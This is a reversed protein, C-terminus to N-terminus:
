GMAARGERLSLWLLAAAALVVMPVMAVQVAGWGAIALLVGSSLSGLSVLAMVAFDNLGQVRAREEPRTAETLMATAGIFAFNWGLGLTILAVYFHALTIGSFAASAAVAFCILGLAIIRPAGFRAILSGTIFSPAYMALVHGQVVGAAEHTGFGCAAMALPTATMMLNMLAYAVMACIMAVGIRRESLIERLSRRPTDETAEHHAPPIDLFLLPITGIAAVVMMARYAGAYPVPELWDTWGQVVEPGILAAALGGAMVLSIARPRFSPSAADAAAFRYFNHGAMYLGILASGGLFLGFSREGIAVSALWLGVMGAIAAVLFGARRGYRGMFGSLIPASAMAAIVVVSIPLTALIPDPALLNGALGGLIFHMPMMAGLVSQAWGLIAVVTWARADGRGADHSEAPATGPLEAETTTAMTFVSDLRPNRALVGKARMWRAPVPRARWTIWFAM